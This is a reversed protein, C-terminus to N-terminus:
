NQKRKLVCLTEVGATQPFMDYLRIDAVDYSGKLIGADRALTNPDCSIYVIKEFGAGIAAELVEKACGKRPPDVLLIRAGGNSKPVHTDGFIGSNQENEQACESAGDQSKLGQMFKLADGNVCEVRDELSLRKMLEKADRTASPEIEVCTFRAASRLALQATLLGVGSYLEVVDGEYGDLAAAVGDYLMDRVESNVQLFSKPSIVASFKGLNQPKEEGYILRVGDGFIVNTNKTNPSVYLCFEGFKQKLRDILEDAHPIDEGNVALTLSLRELMRAVAHRLLGRRATEDYVSIGFDNAWSMLAEILEGTWEGCAACWKIPVVKHSRREYFGLYVRGSRSNKAFPLALKNRYALPAGAVPLPVEVEIGAIKKFADRVADRKVAHQLPLSMHQLDCGGCRGYYPCVPKVRDPSPSVVEVLEGFAVDKKAFIVRARVLEGVLAFPVFIPFRDVKIVGEGGSAYAAVVGEIVDGTKIDAM